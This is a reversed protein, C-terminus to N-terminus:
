EETTPDEPSAPLGEAETEAPMLLPPLLFWGQGWMPALMSAAASNRRLTADGQAAFLESFDSLREGTLAVVCYRRAIDQRVADASAGDEVLWLTDGRAGPDIGAKALAARLGAEQGDLVDALYVVAIDLRATADLTEVAGPSAVLPRPRAASGFTGGGVRVIMALPLMECPMFEPAAPTADATLVMSFNAQRNEARDSLWGYLTQWAQISHAAGEASGAVPPPMEIEGDAAVVEATAVAEEPPPRDDGELPPLSRSAPPAPILLMERDGRTGSEVAASADAAADGARIRDAVTPLAAAICAQLLMLPALAVGMRLVGGTRSPVGGGAM